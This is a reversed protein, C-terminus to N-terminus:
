CSFKLQSNNKGCCNGSRHYMHKTSTTFESSSIGAEITQLVHLSTYMYMYSTGFAWLFLCSALTLAYVGM